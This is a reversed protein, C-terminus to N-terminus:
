PVWRWYSMAKMWHMYACPWRTGTGAPMAAGFAEDAGAPPVRLPLAGGGGDPM